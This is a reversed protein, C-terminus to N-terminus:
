ASQEQHLTRLAVAWEEKSWENPANTANTASTAHNQSENLTDAGSYVMMSGNM